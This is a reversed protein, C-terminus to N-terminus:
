KKPLKDTDGGDSKYKYKHKSLISRKLFENAVDIPINCCSSICDRIENVYEKNKFFCLNEKLTNSPDTSSLVCM